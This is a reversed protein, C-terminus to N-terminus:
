GREDWYRGSQGGKVKGGVDGVREARLVKGSADGSRGVAEERKGTVKGADVVKSPDKTPDWNIIDVGVAKTTDTGKSGSPVQTVTNGVVNGGSSKRRDDDKYTTYDTSKSTGKSSVHKSDGNTHYDEAPTEEATLSKGGQEEVASEELSMGEPLAANIGPMEKKNFWKLIYYGGVGWMWIFAAAFTTM